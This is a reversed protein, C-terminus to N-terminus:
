PWPMANLFGKLLWLEGQTMEMKLWPTGSNSTEIKTPDAVALLMGTKDETNFSIQWRRDESDCIVSIKAAM